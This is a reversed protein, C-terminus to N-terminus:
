SGVSVEDVDSLDSRQSFAKGHAGRERRGKGLISDCVGGNEEHYEHRTKRLAGRYSACLVRLINLHWTVCHAELKVTVSKSNIGM